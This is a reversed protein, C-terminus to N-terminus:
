LALREREALLEKYALNGVYMLVAIVAFVSSGAIINQTTYSHTIFEPFEYVRVFDSNFYDEPSSLWAPKLAVFGMFFIAGSCFILMIYNIM